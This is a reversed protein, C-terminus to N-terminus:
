RFSRSVRCFDSFAQVASGPDQLRWANCIYLPASSRFSEERPRREHPCRINALGHRKLAAATEDRHTNISHRLHVTTTMLSRFSTCLLQRRILHIASLFTVFVICCFSTISFKM